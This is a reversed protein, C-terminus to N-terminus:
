SHQVSTNKRHVLHKSMLRIMGFHCAMFKKLADGDHNGPLEDVSKIYNFAQEIEDPHLGMERVRDKAASAKLKFRSLQAVTLNM